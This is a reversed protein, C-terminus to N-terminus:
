EDGSRAPQDPPGVDIRRHRNVGRDISEPEGFLTAEVTCEGDEVPELRRAPAPRFPAPLVYWSVRGIVAGVLVVATV